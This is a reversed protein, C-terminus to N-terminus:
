DHHEPHDEGPTHRHYLGQEHMQNHLRRHAGTLVMRMRKYAETQARTGVTDLLALAGEIQDLITMADAAAFIPQDALNVRVPSSHATIIEPKDRYHGRVLLALWGSNEMKVTFHGEDADPQISQEAVIEGNRLLQVRSMPVTVSALSWTVDVTGGTATMEVTDGPSKGEVAFEMLPGYTVFTHGSRVADKWADYDFPRDAPLKAYTRVTGVATNASMKDTGGVAPV